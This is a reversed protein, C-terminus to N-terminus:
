SGCPLSLTPSLLYPCNPIHVVCAQKQGVKHKFQSTVTDTVFRSLCKARQMKKKAMMLNRAAMLLPHQGRLSRGRQGQLRQHVKAKAVKVRRRQQCHSCHSQEAPGAKAPSWGQAHQRCCWADACMVCVHCMWSVDMVCGHFCVTVPGQQKLKWGQRSSAGHCCARCAHSQHDDSHQADSVMNICCCEAALNTLVRVCSSKKASAISSFMSSVCMGISNVSISLCISCACAGSAVCLCRMTPQIFSQLCCKPLTMSLRLPM